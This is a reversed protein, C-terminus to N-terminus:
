DIVQKGRLFFPGLCPKFFNDIKRGRFDAVERIVRKLHPHVCGHLFHRFAHLLVANQNRGQYSGLRLAAILHHGPVAPFRRRIQRPKRFDGANHPLEGVIFGRDDHHIGVQLPLLDQGRLLRKGILHLQVRHFPLM